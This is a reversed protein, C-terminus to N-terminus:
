KKKATLAIATLLIPSVAAIRRLTSTKRTLKQGLMKSMPSDTKRLSPSESSQRPNVTVGTPTNSPITALANIPVDSRATLSSGAMACAAVTASVATASTVFRMLNPGAM